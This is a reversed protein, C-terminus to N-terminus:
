CSKWGRPERDKQEKIGLNGELELLDYFYKQTGYSM